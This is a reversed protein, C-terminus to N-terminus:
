YGGTPLLADAEGENERAILRVWREQLGIESFSIYPLEENIGAMRDQWNRLAATPAGPDLLIGDFRALAELDVTEPLTQHRWWYVQRQMEGTFFLEPQNSVLTFLIARNGPTPFQYRNYIDLYHPRRLNIASLLRAVDPAIEPELFIVEFPTHPNESSLRNLVMPLFEPDKIARSVVVQYPFTLRGAVANIEALTRYRDLVVKRICNIGNTRVMIDVGDADGPGTFALDLGPPPFLSVDFVTEAMDFCRFIDDPSFSPTRVVTYPPSMAFELGLERSRRRFDTGPLVSLPFVQVDGALHNGSIFELSHCFGEPNDGPLGVILDIRPVIGQQMLLRTGKLFRNLDTKRRMIDLARPNTSQLGIEFFTFGAAAFRRALDADVTEARIEANLSLARDANLLAIRDLLARLGPRSDFSPDIISIEKIGNRLAWRIGDIVHDDDSVVTKQRSKNYYCFGCHHICGRQTELYIMGDIEPDLLGALYPSQRSAYGPDPRATIEGASWNPYTRLLDIFVMEGEGFVCMDVSERDILPNDPTIEPGGFIISTGTSKKLKRALDLSRHLNWNFVSFGVIDPERALIVQELAADGLSSAVSEPIIEISARVAADAAQKLCAAALPINATKSGFGLHPIPLQILLATVM